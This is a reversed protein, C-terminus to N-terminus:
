LGLLGLLGTFNLGSLVGSLGSLLTNLTQKVIDLIQGVLALVENLLSGLVDSIICVHDDAQHARYIPSPISAGLPPSLLPSPTLTLATSRWSTVALPQLLSVIDNMM